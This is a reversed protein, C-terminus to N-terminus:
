SVMVVASAHLFRLAPSHEYNPIIGNATWNIADLGLLRYHDADDGYFCTEVLSRYSGEGEKAFEVVVGKLDEAYFVSCTNRMM